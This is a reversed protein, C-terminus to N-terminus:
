DNPWFFDTGIPVEIGEETDEPYYKLEIDPSISRIYERLAKADKTLLQDDVFERIIKQERQGNVSTIMYKFRTSVDFTELPHIKKLGKLEAEIKKNDGLTLLKFTCVNGTQPFAFDFENVGQKVIDTPMEKEKIQTLDITAKVSDRGNKPIYEFSYDKGYGLIRAAVLIANKDGILLDDYNIKTVIMSQLLKDIVIGQSIYNANTLIDEERSTMYKMEVSGSALINDPEYLLGKSPLSVMETPFNTKM